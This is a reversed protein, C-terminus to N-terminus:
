KNRPETYQNDWSWEPGECECLQRIYAVLHRIEEYELTHGWSPMRHSKNLIYGGAYIGDFLTDDPRTSMYVKNSHDTPSKPLYKANYGDGNGRIGHCSVCYKLYLGEGKEQGEYFHVPNDTPSLYSSEVSAIEQQMLFNAVLDVVKQPMMTRPMMTESMVGKPNQVFAYVFAGKLRTKLNSLNPGIKGGENGLQHCGLCPLKERLLTKAKVMSFASLKRPKFSSQKFDFRGKQEMLYESIIRVEEDSLGFDPMRGGSGPYFGFPRISKPKKLFVELWDKKVRAGEFSLDPGNRIQWPVIASHRHCAVCNQSLFIKKGMGANVKPYAAKIKKYFKNLRDREKQGLSFLYETIINISQAAQPVLETYKKQVPDRKYFLNPMPTGPHFIDPAVLWKEVWEMNLRFGITNLDVAPVIGDSMSGGEGDLAHCNTCRFKNIVMERAETPTAMKQNQRNRVNLDPLFDAWDGKIITQNKLFLTLALSEKQNFHFNPMRSRGIHLRVNTPHQLYDYLYAPNYRLGAHSLDPTKKFIDTKFSFGDHCSPCALEKILREALPQPNGLCIGEFYFLFGAM